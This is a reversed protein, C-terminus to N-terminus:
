GDYPLEFWFVTSGNKSCCFKVEGGHATTIKKCLALGLGEGERSEVDDADGRQFLRFIKQGNLVDIKTGKNEVECIYKENEIYSFITIDTKEHAYKISNQIINYLLKNFSKLDARIQVDITYQKIKLKKKSAIVKLSDAVQAIVKKSNIKEPNLEAFNKEFASEELMGQILNLMRRSSNLINQLYTQRKKENINKQKFLLDSFGIIVNLPVKFENSFEALFERGTKNVAALDNYLSFNCLLFMINNFFFDLQKEKESLSIEGSVAFFLVGLVKNNYFIPKIFIKEASIIDDSCFGGCRPMYQGLDRNLELFSSISRIIYDDNYKLNNLFPLDMVRGSSLHPVLFILNSGTLKQFETILTEWCTKFNAYFCTNKECFGDSKM